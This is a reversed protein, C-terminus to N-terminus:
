MKSITSKARKNNGWFPKSITILNEAWITYLLFIKKEEDTKMEMVKSIESKLKNRKVKM